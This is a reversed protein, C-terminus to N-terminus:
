RKKILKLEKYEFGRQSTVKSHNPIVLDKDIIMVSDSLFKVHWQKEEYNYFVPNNLNMSIFEGNNSIRIKSETKRYFDFEIKNESLKYTPPWNVKVNNFIPPPPFDTSDTGIYKEEIWTGYLLEKKWKFDLLSMSISDNPYGIRHLSIIGNNLKKIGSVSREFILFPISEYYSLKWNNTHKKGHIYFTSDKFDIINTEQDKESYIFYTKGALLFDSNNRKDTQNCSVFILILLFYITSRNM